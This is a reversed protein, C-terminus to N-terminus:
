VIIDIPVTNRVGSEKLFISRWIVLGTLVWMGIIAFFLLMTFTTLLGTPNSFAATGTIPLVIIGIWWVTRIYKNEGGISEHILLHVVWWLLTLVGILANELEM